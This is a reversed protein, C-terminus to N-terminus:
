KSEQISTCPNGGIVHDLVDVGLTKGSEELRRTVAHDESSPTSDGSPHNHFLIISSAADKIATRFVERPHVLSADLTGVSIQNTRIIQNKTDLSISHFEEQLGDEILRRFHESCFAIADASSSIKKPVQKKEDFFRRGLEVTAMLRQHAKVTLGLEQRTAGVLERLPRQAIEYANKDSRLLVALLEENSLNEM